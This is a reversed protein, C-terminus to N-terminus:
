DHPQNGENTWPFNTIATEVATSYIGAAQGALEM